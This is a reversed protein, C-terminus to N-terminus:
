FYCRRNFDLLHLIKDFEEIMMKRIPYPLKLRDTNLKVLVGNADPTIFDNMVGTIAMDVDAHLSMERYKKILDSDSRLYGDLDVYYGQLGGAEIYAAGDDVLPAAFSLPKDEKQRRFQFGFFNLAM